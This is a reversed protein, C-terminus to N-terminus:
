SVLTAINYGGQMTGLLEVARKKGIIPSCTEGRVIASLFGAKIYAAEDVGPPIRNALLDYLFSEEFLPPNKLLEVLGATQEANLALPPLGEAAREQVHQKYSQLMNTVRVLNHRSAGQVTRPPGYKEQAHIALSHQN